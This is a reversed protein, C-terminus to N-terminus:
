TTWLVGNKVDLGSFGEPREQRVSSPICLGGHVPVGSALKVLVRFRLVMTLRNEEQPAGAIVLTTAHEKLIDRYEELKERTSTLRTDEIVGPWRERVLRRGEKSLSASLFLIVPVRLRFLALRIAATGDDIAILVVSKRETVASGMNVQHSAAVSGLSRMAEVTPSAEREDPRTRLFEVMRIGPPTLGTTVCSGGGEDSADSTTVRPDIGCRWDAHALPLLAGFSLLESTVHSYYGIGRRRFGMWKWIENFGGLLPRNFDAIFVGRGMVMEFFGTNPERQSMLCAAFSSWPVYRDWSSGSRGTLGDIEGGLRHALIERTVSKSPNYKVNGRDYAGRMAEHKPAISGQLEEAVEAPVKEGEDYDDVYIQHWSERTEQSRLPPPKDRRWEQLPPLGAGLPPPTHAVCRHYNQFVGVASTWGRPIVISALYVPENSALGLEFGPVPTAFAMLSRWPAPLRGIYLAGTQDESSWMVVTGDALIVTRWGSASSLTGVDGYLPRQFSNGPVQNMIFRSVCEADAPVEGAKEVSFAGNLVLVGNVCFIDSKKIPGLVGLSVLNRAIDYWHALQRVQIKAKPILNPWMHQPLLAERPNLLFNRVYEDVYNVIDVSAAFGAPPM